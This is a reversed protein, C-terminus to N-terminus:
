TGAPKPPEDEKFIEYIDDTKGELVNRALERAKDQTRLIGGRRKITSLNQGKNLLRNLYIVIRLIQGFNHTDTKDKLFVLNALKPRVLFGILEGDEAYEIKICDGFPVTFKQKGGKAERLKSPDIFKKRLIANM